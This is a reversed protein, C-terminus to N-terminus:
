SPLSVLPSKALNEMPDGYLAVDLAYLAFPIMEFWIRYEEANGFLLIGLLFPIAILKLHLIHRNVNPVILFSLLTGANIFYPFFNRFSAINTWISYDFAPDGNLRTEMTFFVPAHVVLDIAVKVGVSLGFSGLLMYMRQRWPLDAFLFSVCLIMGTEKFGSSLPIIAFIWWYKKNIFLLVFLTFFFLAPLDWPYVRVAWHLRTLYGFSITAFLGFAYFVSRRKFFVVLFLSTLAFWGATWLGIILEIPQRVMPVSNKTFFWESFRVAGVALANSFLRPKWATRFEYYQDLGGTLSYFTQPTDGKGYGITVMKGFLVISVGLILILPIVYDIIIENTARNQKQMM